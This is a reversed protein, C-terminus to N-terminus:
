ILILKIVVHKILCCFSLKPHYNLVLCLNNKHMGRWAVLLFKKKTKQNLHHLGNILFGIPNKPMWQFFNKTSRRNHVKDHIGLSGFLYITSATHMNEGEASVNKRSKWTTNLQEINNCTLAKFSKKSISELTLLQKRLMKNYTLQTVRTISPVFFM